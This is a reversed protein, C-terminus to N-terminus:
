VSVTEGVKLPISLPPVLEIISSTNTVTLVVAGEHPKLSVHEHSEAAFDPVVLILNVALLLM